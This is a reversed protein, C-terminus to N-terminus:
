AFCSRWDNPDFMLVHGDINWNTELSLMNEDMVLASITKM